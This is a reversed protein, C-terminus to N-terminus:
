ERYKSKTPGYWYQTMTKYFLISPVVLVISLVVVFVWMTGDIAKPKVLIADPEPKELLNSNVIEQNDPQSDTQGEFSAENSATQGEFSAENSAANKWSELSLSRLESIDTQRISDNEAPEIREETSRNWYTQFDLGFMGEDYPISPFNM